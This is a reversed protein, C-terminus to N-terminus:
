ESLSQISARYRLLIIECVLGELSWDLRLDGKQQDRIMREMVRGERPLSAIAVM